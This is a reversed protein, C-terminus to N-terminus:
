TKAGRARIRRALTEAALAQDVFVPPDRFLSAAWEDCVTACAEREREVAKAAALDAKLAAITALMRGVVDPGPDPLLFRAAQAKALEVDTFPQDDM